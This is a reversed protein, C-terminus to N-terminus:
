LLEKWSSLDVAAAFAIIFSTGRGEESSVAITGGHEEVIRKVMVLGLGSGARKTTFNPEFLHARAEASLGPGHDAIELQVQGEHLRTAIRILSSRSGCAELANKILNNLLRNIQERDLLLAPLGNTLQLEIQAENEYLRALSQVLDNLNEPKLEARPLRAFSSFEEALHKFSALEEEIAHLSERVAAQAIMAEPLRQQLRFLALQIPTLPNKIEHSVQRAVERWAALREAAVLKERNLRLDRIMANFAEVLQRIEDQAQAEAQVQLDGAAVQSTVTILAEIPRSL